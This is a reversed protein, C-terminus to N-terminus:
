PHVTTYLFRDLYAYPPRATAALTFMTVIESLGKVTIMHPTNRKVTEFIFGLM